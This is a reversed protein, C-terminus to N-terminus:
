PIHRREQPSVGHGRVRRSQTRHPDPGMSAAEERGPPMRRPGVAGPRGESAAQAPVEQVENWLRVGGAKAALVSALLGFHFAFEGFGRGARALNADQLPLVALTAVQKGPTRMLDKRRTGM